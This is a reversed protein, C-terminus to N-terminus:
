FGDIQNYGQYKYPQKSVPAEAGRREVPRGEGGVELVDVPDPRHEGYHKDQQSVYSAGDAPLHHHPVQIGPKGEETQNGIGQDSKSGDDEGSTRTLEDARVQDGLPGFHRQGSLDGGPGDLPDEVEEHDQENEADRQALDAAASGHWAGLQLGNQVEAAPQDADEGGDSQHDQKAETVELAPRM